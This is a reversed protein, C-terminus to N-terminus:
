LQKRRETVVVVGCVCCDGKIEEEMGEGEKMSVREGENEKRGKGVKGKMGISKQDERGDEKRGEIM